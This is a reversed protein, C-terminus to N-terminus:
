KINKKIKRYSAANVGFLSKFLKSFYSMSSFGCREAIEGISLSTYTLLEEAAALRTKQIYETLTMGFASKFKRCFHYKSINLHACIGDLNIEAQYHNNIYEIARSTLTDTITIHDRSYEYIYDLLSLFSARAAEADAGSTFREDARRFIREVEEIRDEPIKAYVVSHTSFLNHFNDTDPSLNILSRYEEVNAFIKSRDYEDPNEPMTYHQKDPGILCLTGREMPFLTDSFVISGIGSYIFIIMAGDITHWTKYHPDRGTRHHMINM